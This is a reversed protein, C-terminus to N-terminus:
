NAAAASAQPRGVAVRLGPSQLLEHYWADAAVTQQPLKAAGWILSLTRRTAMSTKTRQSDKVASACPGSADCLCLLGGVDITQGSPNFEYSSGPPAVAVHLPPQAVALDVVSIPLGRHLSVENGIDVAVNIPLLQADRAVRLLYEPAPKSRGPPKFGGARLLDRVVARIEDSSQLPVPVDLALWQVLEASTALGGLTDPFDTILARLDLDPHPEVTLM